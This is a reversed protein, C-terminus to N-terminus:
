SLNKAIETALAYGKQTLRYGNKLDGEILKREWLVHLASKVSGRSRRSLSREVETVRIEKPYEARLLLLIEELITVDPLVLRHSGFDEVLPSLPIQVFEILKGAEEM